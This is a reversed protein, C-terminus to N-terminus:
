PSVSSWGPDDEVMMTVFRLVSTTKTTLSPSFWLVHGSASADFYRLNATPDFLQTETETLGATFSSTSIGYFSPLVSDQEYSLLAGRSDPFAASDFDYIADLATACDSCGPPTTAALNWVTRQTQQEAMASSSLVDNPMVAGSDDIMDVRVGPFAEATQWWNVVAGFGGASSGALVVRSASPFTAGLRYLFRSMNAYGVFYATKTTSLFKLQTVNSGSHTDGTCYPVFVWNWDKFPNAAASRDFFGGPLALYTTDAVDAAFDSESYGGFNTATQFLYCTAYDWCAGGEQLYILLKDSASTLNVGIGVPSGDGCKADSFPVWIWTEATATIGPDFGSRFIRDTTALAPAAALLYTLASLISVVRNSGM